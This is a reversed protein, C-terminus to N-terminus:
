PRYSMLSLIVKLAMQRWTLTVHSKFKWFHRIDLNTEKVM